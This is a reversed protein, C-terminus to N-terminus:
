INKFRIRKDYFYLTIRFQIWFPRTTVRASGICIVFNDNQKPKMAYSTESSLYFIYM